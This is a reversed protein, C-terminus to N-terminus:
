LKNAELFDVCAKITNNTTTGFKIRLKEKVEEPLIKWVSKALNEAAIVSDFHEGNYPMEVDRFEESEEIGTHEFFDKRRRKYKNPHCTKLADYKKQQLM